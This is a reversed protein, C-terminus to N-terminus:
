KNKEKEKEKEERKVRKSEKRGMKQQEKYENSKKGGILWISYIGKQSSISVKICTRYMNWGHCKSVTRNARSTM